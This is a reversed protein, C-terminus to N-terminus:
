EVAVSPLKRKVAAKFDAIARALTSGGAAYEEMAQEFLSDIVDDHPSLDTARVTPSIKLFETYSNQGALFPDSFEGQIAEAVRIDAVMEGRQKLARKALLAEDACLYEVLRRAAVEGPAGKRVALWLGGWHYPIPAPAMAWDGSSPDGSMSKLVYELGWPPFFYGLVEISDGNGNRLSGSMGACWGPTWKRQGGDLGAERLEGCAKLCEVMLPDIVLRGDEIWASKRGCKFVQFLDGLAAVIVAKGRSERGLKRATAMFSPIDALMRGIIAPDGSGLYQEAISRRYFFAGPDQRFPLAVIRGSRDTAAEIAFRAFLSGPPLRLEALYGSEVFKKLYVSDLMFVDPAAEGSVLADRLRSEYADNAVLQFDIATNPTRASPGSRYEGIGEKVENSFSWVVLKAPEPAITKADGGITEREGRALGQCGALAIFAAAAILPIVPGDTRARM